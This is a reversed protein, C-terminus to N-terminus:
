RSEKRTEFDKLAADLPMAFIVVNATPLVEDVNERSWTSRPVAPARAGLVYDGGHRVGQRRAIDQGIRGMGVDGRAGDPSVM